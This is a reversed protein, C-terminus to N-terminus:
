KYLFYGGSNMSKTHPRYQLDYWRFILGMKICSGDSRHRVVHNTMIYPDHMPWVHTMNNLWQDHTPWVQTVHGPWTVKPWTVHYILLLLHPAFFKPHATPYQKNLNSTACRWYYHRWHHHCHAVVVQLVLMVYTICRRIRILVHEASCWMCHTKYCSYHPGIFITLLGWPLALLSPVLVLVRLAGVM